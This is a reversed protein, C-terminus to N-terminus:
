RGLGAVMGLAQRIRTLRPKPIVVGAVGPIRRGPTQRQQGPALCPFQFGLPVILTVNLGVVFAMYPAYRPWIRGDVILWGWRSTKAGHMGAAPRTRSNGFPRRRRGPIDANRARHFQCSLIFFAAHLKPDPLFGRVPGHGRRHVRYGNAVAVGM